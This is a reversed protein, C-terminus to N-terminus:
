AAHRGEEEDEVAALAALFEAAEDSEPDDEEIEESAVAATDGGMGHGFTRLYDLRRCGGDRIAAEVEDGCEEHVIGLVDLTLTADTLTIRATCIACRRAPRALLRLRTM